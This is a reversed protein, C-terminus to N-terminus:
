RNRQHMSNQSRNMLHSTRDRISGDLGETMDNMEGRIITAVRDFDPRESPNRLWCEKMISKTLSPCEVRGPRLNKKCVKEIYDYRNFGKFPIKLAFIEWLLIGFSYVDVKHNYKEGLMCEPAM